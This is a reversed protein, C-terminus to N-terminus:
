SDEARFRGQCRPDSDKSGAKATRTVKESFGAKRASEMRQNRGQSNLILPWESGSGAVTGLLVSSAMLPTHSPSRAGTGGGEQLHSTGGHPAGQPRAELRVGARARAVEGSVSFPLQTM